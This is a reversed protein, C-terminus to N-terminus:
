GKLLDTVHQVARAVVSANSAAAADIINKKAILTAIAANLQGTLNAITAQAIIQSQQLDAVQKKLLAVEDVPVPPTAQVVIPYHKITSGVTIRVNVAATADTPVTFILESVGAGIAIEPKGDGEIDVAVDAAGSLKLTFTEGPAFTKGEPPSIITVTPMPPETTPPNSAGNWTVPLAVSTKNPAIIIRNAAQYGPDLANGAETQAHTLKSSSYFFNGTITLDHLFYQRGKMNRFELNGVIHNGRLTIHACEWLSFATSTNDHSYNNEYLAESDGNIEDAFGVGMYTQGPKVWTNHHSHCNRITRKHNDIDFWIGPGGNESFEVGDVVYDNVGVHKGGGGENGPNGFWLGNVQFADKNSAVAWPANDATVGRNNRHVLGGVITINSGKSSGMGNTGNEIARPNILKVNTGFIGIGTSSNKIASVNEWISNSGTRIAAQENQMGSTKYGSVTIGSVRWWQGSQSVAGAFIAKGANAAILEIMGGSAGSSSLNVGSPYAGDALILKDGPKATNVAGQVNMTPNLQINAM